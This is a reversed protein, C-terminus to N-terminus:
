RGGTGPMSYLTDKIRKWIEKIGFEEIDSYFIIINTNDSLHLWLRARHQDEPLVTWLIRTMLASRVGGRTHVFVDKARVNGIM